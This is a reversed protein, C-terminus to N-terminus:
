QCGGIAGTIFKSFDIGFFAPIFSPLRRDGDFNNDFNWDAFTSQGLVGALFADWDDGDPEGPNQCNFQVDVVGDGDYDGFLRTLRPMFRAVMEELTVDNTGLCEDDWGDVHAVIGLNREWDPVGSTSWGDPFKVHSRAIVNGLTGRTFPTGVGQSPTQVAIGNIADFVPQGDQEEVLDGARGSVSVGSQDEYWLSEIFLAHRIGDEALHPHRFPPPNQPDPLWGAWDGALTLGEGMTRYTGKRHYWIINALRRAFLPATRETIRTSPVVQLSRHRDQRLNFNQAGYLIVQLSVSGDQPVVAEDALPEAIQDMMISWSERTDGFLSPGCPPDATYRNPTTEYLNPILLTVHFKDDDSLEPDPDPDFLNVFGDLGDAQVPSPVNRPDFQVMDQFEGGVVLRASNYQCVNVAHPFDDEEGGFRFGWEVSGDDPYFCATMCDMGGQSTLTVTHPPETEPNLTITDEFSGVFVPRGIGDVKVRSWASTRDPDELTTTWEIIPEPWAPWHPQSPARPLFGGSWANTGGGAKGVWGGAFVRGTVDFVVGSAEDDYQTGYTYRWDLRWRFSGPDLPTSSSYSYVAVFLDRGGAYNNDYPGIPTGEPDPNFNIDDDGYYGAVAIQGTNHNFAVALVADDGSSGFKLVPQSPDNTGPNVEDPIVLGNQQGGYRLLVVLADTSDSTTDRWIWQNQNPAPPLTNEGFLWARGRFAGGVVVDTNRLNPGSGDIHGGVDVEPITDVDFLEVYGEVTQQCIEINQAVFTRLPSLDACLSSAGCQGFAEYLWSTRFIWANTRYLAPGPVEDEDVPGEDDSVVITGSVLASWGGVSYAYGEVRPGAHQLGPRDSNPDGCALSHPWFSVPAFGAVEVVMSTPNFPFTQSRPRNPDWASVRSRLTTGSMATVEEEIVTWVMGDEWVDAGRVSRAIVGFPPPPPNTTHESALLVERHTHHDPPQAMARVVFILCVVATMAMVM